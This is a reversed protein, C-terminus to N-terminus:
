NKTSLFMVQINAGQDGASLAQLTPDKVVADLPPRLAQLDAQKCYHRKWKEKELLGAVKM